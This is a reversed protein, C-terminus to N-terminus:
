CPRGAGAPAATFGDRRLAALVEALSERDVEGALRVRAGGPLVIEIGAAERREPDSVVVPAFMARAPQGAADRRRLKARWRYFTTETLKSQRCFGRVTMGSAAQRRIIERWRRERGQNRNVREAM